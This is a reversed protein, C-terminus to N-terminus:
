KNDPAVAGILGVLALGASIIVNQMEPAIPIGAATLLMIIGRWTSAEKLREIVYAKM